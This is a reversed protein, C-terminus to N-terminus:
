RKVITTTPRMSFGNVSCNESNSPVYWGGFSWTHRDSVKGAMDSRPNYDDGATLRQYNSM